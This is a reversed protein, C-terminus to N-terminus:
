FIIKKINYKINKKGKFCIPLAFNYIAVAEYPMEGM